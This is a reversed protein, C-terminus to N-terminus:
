ATLVQSALEGIMDSASVTVFTYAISFALTTFHPPTVLTGTATTQVYLHDGILLKGHGLHDTYVTKDTNSEKLTTFYTDAIEFYATELRYWLNDPDGPGTIFPTKGTRPVTGISTYQTAENGRTAYRNTTATINHIQLAWYRGGPPAYLPRPVDLTFECDGNNVDSTLKVTWEQYYTDRPGVRQRKSM